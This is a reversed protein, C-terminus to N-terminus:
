GSVVSKNYHISEDTVVFGHTELAHAIVWGDAGKLFEAAQHYKYKGYVYEAISAYRKQVQKDARVCFSGIGKRLKCWKALDDNGDAIEEFAMRPMRITGAELQNQMFVWFKPVLQFGYTRNKATILVGSDIWYIPM